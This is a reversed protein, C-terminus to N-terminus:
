GGCVSLSGGVTARNGQDHQVRQTWRPYTYVSTDQSTSNTNTQRQDYVRCIYKMWRHSEVVAKSSSANPRVGTPPTHLSASTGHHDPPVKAKMALCRGTPRSADPIYPPSPPFVYRQWWAMTEIVWPLTNNTLTKIIVHYFHILSFTGVM